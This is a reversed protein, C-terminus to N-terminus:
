NIVVALKDTTAFKGQVMLNYDKSSAMKPAKTPKFRKRKNDVDSVERKSLEEAADEAMQLNKFKKFVIVPIKRTPGDYDQGTVRLAEIKSNSLKPWLLSNKRVWTSPVAIVKFKNKEILQVVSYM